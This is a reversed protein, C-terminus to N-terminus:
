TVWAASLLFLLLAKRSSYFFAWDCIHTTILEKRGEWGNTGKLIEIFDRGNLVGLPLIAPATSYALAALSSTRRGKIYILFVGQQFCPREYNRMSSMRSPNIWPWRHTTRKQIDSSPPPRQSPTLASDRKRKGMDAEDNIRLSCTLSISGRPTLLEIEKKPCILANDLSPLHLTIDTNPMSPSGNRRNLETAARIPVLPCSSKSCSLTWLM